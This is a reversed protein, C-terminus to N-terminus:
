SNSGARSGQDQQLDEMRDHRAGDSLCLRFEPAGSPPPRRKRGSTRCSMEEEALAGFYGKRSAKVTLIQRFHCTHGGFQEFGRGPTIVTTGGSYLSQQGIYNVDIM